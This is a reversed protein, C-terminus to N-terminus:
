LDLSKTSPLRPTINGSSRHLGFSWRRATAL